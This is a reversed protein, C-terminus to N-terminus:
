LVPFQSAELRMYAFYFGVRAYFVVIFGVLSRLAYYVISM